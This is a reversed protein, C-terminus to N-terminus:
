RGQAVGKKLLEPQACLAAWVHHPVEYQGHGYGSEYIARLLGKRVLMATEPCPEAEIVPSGHRLGSLLIQAEGPSLHPIYGLTKKRDGCEKLWGWVASVGGLATLALGLVFWAGGGLEARGTWYLAVVLVIGVGAVAVSWRPDELTAKVERCLALLQGAGPKAMDERESM